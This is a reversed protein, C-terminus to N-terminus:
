HHATISWRGLKECKTPNYDKMNARYYNEFFDGMLQNKAGALSIIGDPNSKADWQQKQSVERM